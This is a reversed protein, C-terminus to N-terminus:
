NLKSIFELIRETSKGDWFKPITGKKYNGSEIQSICSKIVDLEFPVLTNTGETITVPRETNPRLTLCPIGVFTSEEQIGGSDTLIFKSYKILKQFAFYDLPDTLKLNANNQIKGKLEFEELKKLTRPHIPFVINYKLTIQEILEVLKILGAETDVTAPRHMTMLVFPREKLQLQELIISKEIEERFAVLTDIMTNGVFHINEKKKGESLLHKLGSQETVFFLDALEDTLIRNHEEPMTKDYSRLGSELHALRIGIKNATIAAALTSNVDGVVIVLDPNFKEKILVELKVMIEAIQSNASGQDINLFYDPTLDFQKFFVDSMKDDYHQGTHVIKLDINEYKAALKQFLTVKIFNPRTGIVILINKKM